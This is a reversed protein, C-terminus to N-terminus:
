QALRLYQQYVAEASSVDQTWCQKIIGGGELRSTDPLEDKNLLSKFNEIYALGATTTNPMSAGHPLHGTMITYLSSGLGFIETEETVDIGYERPDFFGYDPLGGGDYTNNKSGGFDCLKLDLNADLLMNDPRIDCHLVNHGHCHALGEAAQQCWKLRLALHATNGHSKLYRFVDQNAAEAFLLGKTPQPPDVLGLFRDQDTCAAAITQPSSGYEVIRPHSGLAGLIGAETRFKNQQKPDSPEERASKIVVGPITSHRWITATSGTSHYDSAQIPKYLGM